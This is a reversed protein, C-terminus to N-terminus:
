RQAAKYELWNDFELKIGEWSRETEWHEGYKKTAYTNLAWERKENEYDQERDVEGTDEFHASRAADYAGIMKPTLHPLPQGSPIKIGEDSQGSCCDEYECYEYCGRANCEQLCGIEKQMQCHFHDHDEHSYNIPSVRHCACCEGWYMHPEQVLLYDRNTLERYDKQVSARKVRPLFVTYEKKFSDAWPSGAMVRIYAVERGFAIIKGIEEASLQKEAPKIEIWADIGELRFDPLYHYHGVKFHEPEYDWGIELADFFVSWRAELRSRFYTDKYVTPIAKIEAQRIQM